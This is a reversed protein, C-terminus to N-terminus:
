PQTGYGLLEPDPLTRSGGRFLLSALLSIRRFKGTSEAAARAPCVPM